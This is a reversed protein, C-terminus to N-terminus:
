NTKGRINSFELAIAPKFKGSLQDYHSVISAKNHRQLLWMVQKIWGLFENRIHAFFLVNKVSIDFYRWSNVWFVVKQVWLRSLLAELMWRESRIYFNCFFVPGKLCEFFFRDQTIIIFNQDYIIITFVIFNFDKFLIYCSNWEMGNESFLSYNRTEL